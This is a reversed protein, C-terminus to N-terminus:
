EYLKGQPSLRFKNLPLSLYKVDDSIPPDVIDSSNLWILTLHNGSELKGLEYVSLIWLSLTIIKNNSSSASVYSEPVIKVNWFGSIDFSGFILFSFVSKSPALPSLCAGEWILTLYALGLLEASFKVVDYEVYPNVPVVKDGPCSGLEVCSVAVVDKLHSM